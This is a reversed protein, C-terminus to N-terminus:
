LKMEMEEKPNINYTNVRTTTTRGETMEERTRITITSVRTNITM